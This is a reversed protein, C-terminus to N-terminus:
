FESIYRYIIAFFPRFKLMSLSLPDLEKQHSYSIAVDFFYNRILWEKFFGSGM